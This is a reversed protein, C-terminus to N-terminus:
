QRGTGHCNFCRKNGRCSGCNIWSQKGSGTYYGTDRWSGGTGNCSTCTGSGHCIRCTTYTSSSSSSSNSNNYNYNYNPQSNTNGNNQVEPVEIEGTGNCWMCKTSGQGGCARCTVWEYYSTYPPYTLCRYQTSGGTGWCLLCITKGRENCVSCPVTKKSSPMNHVGEISRNHASVFIISNLFFVLLINRSTQRKLKTIM